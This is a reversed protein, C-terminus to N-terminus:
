LRFRLQNALIGVAALCWVIFAGALILFRRGSKVANRRLAGDLM